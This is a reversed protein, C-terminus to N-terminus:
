THVTCSRVVCVTSERDNPSHESALESEKDKEEMSWVENETYRSSPMSICLIKHEEYNM